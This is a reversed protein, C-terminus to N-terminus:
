DDNQEEVRKPIGCQYLEFKVENSDDLDIETKLTYNGPEQFFDFALSFEHKSRYSMGPTLVIREERGGGKNGGMRGGSGSDDTRDYAYSFSKWIDSKNIPVEEESINTIELELVLPSDICLLPTLTTLKMNLRPTYSLSVDQELWQAYMKKREEPTASQAYAAISALGTILVLLIMQWCKKIKLYRNM